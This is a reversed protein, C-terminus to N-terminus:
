LKCDLTDLELTGGASYGETPLYDICQISHRVSQFVPALFGDYDISHRPFM